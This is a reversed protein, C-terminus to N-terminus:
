LYFSFYWHVFVVAAFAIIILIYIVFLIMLVDAKIVINLETVFWIL